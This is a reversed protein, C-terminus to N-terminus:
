GGDDTIYINAPNLDGHVVGRSHAHTLAAGVDRIIALAHARELALGRRASLVSGLPLGALYEMTFFEIDGDRDYEHARVINPHSLSQLYQFERRLETAMASQGSIRTHLVKLAVRQGVDPLDLRYRDIAEFVTGTGGRGIMGKIVYRNRLVDGVAIEDDAGQNAADVSGLDGVPITVSSPSVSAPAVPAHRVTASPTPPSADRPAAAELGADRQVPTSIDLDTPPGLLQSGLQSKLRGFVEEKIKGRRYYQDVLSLSDWGAEPSKRALKYVARLFAAEDCAGRSLADLWVRAVNFDGDSQLTGAMSEVTM